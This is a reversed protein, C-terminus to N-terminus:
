TPLGKERLSDETHFPRAPLNLWASLSLDNLFCNSLMMHPASYKAPFAGQHESPSKSLKVVYRVAECLRTDEGRPRPLSNHLVKGLYKQFYNGLRHCPPLSLGGATIPLPSSTPNQLSNAARQPGLARSQVLAAAAARGHSGNEQQRAQGAARPDRRAPVLISSCMTSHAPPPSPPGVVLEGDQLGTSFLCVVAPVRKTETPTVLM